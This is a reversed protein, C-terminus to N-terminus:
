KLDKTFAKLATLMETSEVEGTTQNISVDVNDLKEMFTTDLAM